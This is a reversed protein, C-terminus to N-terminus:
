KLLMHLQFLTGPDASSMRGYHESQYRYVRYEPVNRGRRALNTIPTNKHLANWDSLEM